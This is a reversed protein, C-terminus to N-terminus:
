YLSQRLAIWMSYEIRLNLVNHSTARKDPHSAMRILLGHLFGCNRM